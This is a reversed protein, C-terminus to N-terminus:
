NNATPSKWLTYFYNLVEDPLPVHGKGEIVSETINKYGHDLAMKKAEEFQNYFRGNKGFDKDDLTVFNKVPLKSRSPDNSFPSIDMCRNRFNGAVPAAAYLLEPHQFVMAWVLHAGAEFGTLFIKESGSYMKQVDKIIQQVGELDFRCTTMAEITDWVATSYPYITTDRLGHNGNTTNCPAVIIFPMDGRATVFREANKRFEKEAAEAIVVIPWKKSASWKNPLSIYYKMPHHDARKLEISSNPNQASLHITQSVIIVLVLVIRFHLKQYVTSHCM